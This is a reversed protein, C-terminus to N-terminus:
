YRYCLLDSETNMVERVQVVKALTGMPLLDDLSAEQDSGHKSPGTYEM